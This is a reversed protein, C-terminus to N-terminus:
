TNQREVEIQNNLIIKNRLLRYYNHNDKKPRFSLKEITNDCEGNTFGKHLLRNIPYKDSNEM